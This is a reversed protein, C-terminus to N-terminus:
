CPLVQFAVRSALTVTAVLFTPCPAVTEPFPARGCSEQRKEPGRLVNEVGKFKRQYANRKSSTLSVSYCATSHSNPDNSLSRSM